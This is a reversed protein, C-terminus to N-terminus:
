QLGVHQLLRGLVRDSDFIDEAIARAARSHRGYDSELAAIGALASAPGDFPLLGAGTPLRSSFGTDQALVPRGSALYCLSRDSFWGSRSHVYGSKAIGFEAWSEGVFRRYREPTSAVAAPDLLSWGNRRLAKLDRTEGEHIALALEFRVDTRGPLEFFERLSHAKQGWLVGDREVSGYGRWNAVTTLARREVPERVPWEELVIPQVTTQWDIGCLPVACDPSGLALGVTVYHTHGALGVDVHETEHWLQTFGPDLDVYVRVPIRGILREDRLLGSLNLLVDAREAAALTEDRSRGWTAGTERDLLGLRGELGFARAIGDLYAAPESGALPAGARSSVPEVFHVDHGLRRLGLLYQLVAWAAGGQGPVGAMM